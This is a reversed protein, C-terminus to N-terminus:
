QSTMFNFLPFTSLRWFNPLCNIKNILQIESTKGISNEINLWIEYVFTETYFFIKTDIKGM